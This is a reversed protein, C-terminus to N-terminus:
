LRELILDLRSVAGEARGTPDYLLTHWGLASAAALSKPRDDVFLVDGTACGAARELAKYIAADPKRVGVQDSIVFGDFYAEIAFARRLKRSWDSLDNSLCWIAEARERAAPLFDSLGDSLAHGALYDDELAPALGVRRWFQAAKLRGLSAEHYAGEVEDRKGENREVFPVLLEAVDDGARYIVGMADLVLVRPRGTM